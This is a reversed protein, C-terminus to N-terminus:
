FRILLFTQHYIYFITKFSGLCPEFNTSKIKGHEFTYVPEYANKYRKTTIIFVFIVYSAVYLTQVLKKKVFRLIQKQKCINRIPILKLLINNEKASLIINIFM